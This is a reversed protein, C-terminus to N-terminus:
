SCFDAMSVAVTPFERLLPRDETVCRVRMEPRQTAAHSGIAHLLHTKGLGTGGFLLLPNYAEGPAQAVALAASHAFQNNGIVFADFTNRQNLGSPAVSKRGSAPSALAVVQFRLELPRGAVRTVVECLLHAHRDRLWPECFEDAAELTLVMADLGVARIPMLWLEYDAPAVLNRLQGLAAAWLQEAETNMIPRLSAGERRAALPDFPIRKRWAAVRWGDTM